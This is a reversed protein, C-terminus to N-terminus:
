LWRKSAMREARVRTVNDANLPNDPHNISIWGDRDNRRPTPPETTQKLAQRFQERRFAWAPSLL